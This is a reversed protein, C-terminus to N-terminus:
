RRLLEELRDYSAEVGREMGTKLVMDRTEKSEWEMTLTLLTKGDHETLMYIGIADGEYWPDDFSETHVLREPPVVETYTGQMRMMKGAKQWGYKFGGGVRLDIECEPMEWGPPGLLWRKVFEPKTMAEFVLERPANFERTMVIQRDTPTTVTLTATM